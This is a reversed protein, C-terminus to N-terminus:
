AEIVIRWTTGDVHVGDVAYGDAEAARPVDRVSRPDDVVLVCTTGRALTALRTKARAWTLPCRVGRLDLTVPEV